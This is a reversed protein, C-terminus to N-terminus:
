HYWKEFLPGKKEKKSTELTTHPAQFLCDAVTHSLSRCRYCGNQQKVATADLITVFLGADVSHFVFRNDPPATPLKAHFQVDYMYVKRWIYKADCGQIHTRYQALSSYTEPYFRMVLNEFVTWAKLVTLFSSITRIEYSKSEPKNNM